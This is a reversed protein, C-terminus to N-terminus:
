QRQRNEITNIYRVPDIVNFVETTGTYSELMVAYLDDASLEPAISWGMGLLGSIYPLAWSFGGRGRYVYCDSAYNSATTRYDSPILIKGAYFTTDGAVYPSITYDSANMNDTGPPAGGWTFYKHTFDGSSLVVAIDQAAAQEMLQPWREKVRPISYDIGDSISVVRIKDGEPLTSNVALLTDMALLYNISNKGNDPVAFYYIEAEPLIGCEAGAVVSACAIGHFHLKKMINGGSVETYHMRGKFEVHGPNIPKDIVAVKIGKGTYGRSHLERIGPGPEMGRDLWEAPDFYDPMNDAAPWRTKNDFVQYKLYDYSLGSLDNKRYDFGSFGFFFDYRDNNDFSTDVLQQPLSRPDFGPRSTEASM